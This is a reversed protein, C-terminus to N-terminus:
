GRMAVMMGYVMITLTPPMFLLITVVTAKPAAQEALRKETESADRRVDIAIQNLSQTLPSGLEEAQLMATVFQDVFESRTRERVGLLSERFSEGVAMGNLAYQMEQGLPGGFREAVRGLAQQFGLGSSVVVALVDLFDPLDRDLSQQREKGTQWLVYFPGGTGVILLMAIIWWPLGAIWCIIAVFGCIATYYGLEDYFTKVSRGEPRGARDILDEIFDDGRPGVFRSILAGIPGGIRSKPDARGRIARRGRANIMRLDGVAVESLPDRRIWVFGVVLAATAGGVALAVLLGIM